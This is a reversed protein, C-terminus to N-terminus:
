MGLREELTKRWVAALSPVGLLRRLAAPCPNTRRGFRQTASRVNAQNPRGRRSKLSQSRSGSDLSAMIWTLM